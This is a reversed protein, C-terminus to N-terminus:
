PDRRVAGEHVLDDSMLLGDFGIDGRIIERTVTASTSAPTTASRDGHLRRAGDDRAPM